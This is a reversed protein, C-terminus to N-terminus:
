YMSRQGRKMMALFEVMSLEHELSRMVQQEVEFPIRHKRTPRYYISIDPIKKVLTDFFILLLDSHELTKQYEDNIYIRYHVPQNKDPQEFVVECMNGPERGWLRGIMNSFRPPYRPSLYLPSDMLDFASM